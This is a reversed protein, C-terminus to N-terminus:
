AYAFASTHPFFLFSSRGEFRIIILIWQVLYDNGKM